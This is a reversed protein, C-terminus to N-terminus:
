SISYVSVWVGPEDERVVLPNAWKALVALFESKQMSFYDLYVDEFEHPYIGDYIKVLELGQERTMSGRRIEICADQNARGFGFKLYMLYTHLAYLFQDNQAFNTFTGSNSSEADELGCNEKAVLYNRYPDWSEFYSWNLRKLNPHARVLEDSLSYFRLKEKDLGSSNLVIDHGDELYIKKLYNLDRFPTGETISAGGYEVEGDEGYFVLDCDFRMAIELPALTIATLWGFYPFGKEILGQRNLTRMAEPDPSVAVHPYGSDIFNQLNQKGIDTPLPPNITVALPNMGYKYKLNYAVYSGDKGGSVPVICDFEGGSRRHSDLLKELEFGRKPWDLTKKKENWVCANCRGKKDFTIRPRTSMTLCTSCWQIENTM